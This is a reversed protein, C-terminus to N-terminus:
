TLTYEWERVGFYNGHFVVIVSELLLDVKVAAVFSHETGVVDTGVALMGL